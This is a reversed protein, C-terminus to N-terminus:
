ECYSNPFIEGSPPDIQFIPDNFLLPNEEILRRAVQRMGGHASQGDAGEPSRAEEM